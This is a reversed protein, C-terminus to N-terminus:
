GQLKKLGGMERIVNLAERFNGPKGHLSRLDRLKVTPPRPAANYSGGLPDLAFGQDPNLPRLREFSM